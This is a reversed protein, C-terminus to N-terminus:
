QVFSPVCVWLLCSPEYSRGSLPLRCAVAMCCLLPLLLPHRSLCRLHYLCAARFGRGCLAGCCGGQGWGGARRSVRESLEDAVSMAEGESDESGDLEGYGEQALLRADLEQVAGVVYPLLKALSVYHTDDPALAM